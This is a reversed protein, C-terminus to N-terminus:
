PFVTELAELYNEVLVVTVVKEKPNRAAVLHFTKDSSQMFRTKRSKALRRLYHIVETENEKPFVLTKVGARIAGDMKEGVGGIAQVLGNITIEGTVALNEAPPIQFVKSTVALFSGLGASTGSKPVGGHPFHFHMEQQAVEEKRVQVPRLGRTKRKQFFQSITDYHGLLCSRACRVSEAFMEDPLGTIRLDTAGSAPYLTSELRLLKGISGLVALGPIVGVEPKWITPHKIQTIPGLTNNLLTQNVRLPNERGGKRNLDAALSRCTKLILSELDAVGNEFTNEDIIHRLIEPPFVISGEPLGMTRMAKPILVRQAIRVKEEPTFAEIDLFELRNFLFHPIEDTDMTSFFFFCESLDLTTGLFRDPMADSHEPDIIRSLIEHIDNDASIKEMRDFLVM